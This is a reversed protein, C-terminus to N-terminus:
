LARFLSTNDDVDSLQEHKDRCHEYYRGFTNWTSRM